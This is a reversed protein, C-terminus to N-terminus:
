GMAELLGWTQQLSELLENGKPLTRFYRDELAILNREKMWDLYIAATSFNLNAQYVIKTKGINDGSGIVKLIKAIIEFRDRRKAARIGTVETM